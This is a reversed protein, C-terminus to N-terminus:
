WFYKAVVTPRVPVGDQSMVHLVIQLNKTRWGQPADTMAAAVEDTNVLFNGAAETGLNTAGAIYLIWEGTDPSQFRSIVAYDEPATWDPTTRVTWGANPHFKDVLRNPPGKVFVYRLGNALKDTWVNSFSGILIVPGTALERYSTNTSPLLYWPHGKSGLFGSIQALAYADGVGVVSNSLSIMRDDHGAPVQQTETEPSFVVPEAVCITVARRSGLLPSWLLVRADRRQQSLIYASCAVAITMIVVSTFYLRRRSVSKLLTIPKAITPEVSREGTAVQQRAVDVIESLPSNALLENGDLAKGSTSERIPRWRFVVAYSGTPLEIVPDEEESKGYYQALRKRVENATVRVTSDQATDYDADRHFVEFGIVREKLDDQGRGSLVNEVSYELFRSCRQSGHFFPSELIRELQAKAKSAERQALRDM